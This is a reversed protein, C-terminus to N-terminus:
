YLTPCSRVIAVANRRSLGDIAAALRDILVQDIGGVGLEAADGIQDFEGGEASAGAFFPRCDDRVVQALQATRERYVANVLALRRLAKGISCQFHTFDPTYIAGYLAPLGMSVMEESSQWRDGDQQSFRLLAGIGNELQEDTTIVQLATVEGEVEQLNEPVASVVGGNTFYVVRVLPRNEALVTDAGSLPAVTIDLELPLAEKVQAVAQQLGTDYLLYYKANSSTLYVFNVVRFPMKWEQTWTILKGGALKPPAFLIAHKTPAAHQLAQYADCTFALEVPPLELVNSRGVSVSQGAVILDLDQLLDLALTRGSVEKQRMSLSLFFFLIIGGVILIFIWNFQVEVMGRRGEGRM